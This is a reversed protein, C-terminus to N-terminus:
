LIFFIAIVIMCHCKGSLHTVLAVIACLTINCVLNTKGNEYHTKMAIVGQYM